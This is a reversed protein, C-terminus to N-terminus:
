HPIGGIIDVLAHAIMGPRLSKRLLAVVGFLLGFLTIRLVSEVGQYGHTVGFLVAQLVLGLLPSRTLAAFQRQLYGRFTLEEVFGASISLAIWIPIFAADHVQLAQVVRAEPAGLWTNWAFEVALWGALMAVSLLVDVAIGGLGWGRPSIIEALRVGRGHLGIAVYYLLALEAGLLSLYVPWGSASLGGTTARGHIQSYGAWAIAGLIVILIITHRPSAVPKLATQETTNSTM